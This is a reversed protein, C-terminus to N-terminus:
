YDISRTRPLPVLVMYEIPCEFRDISANMPSRWCVLISTM